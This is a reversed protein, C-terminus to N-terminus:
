SQISIKLFDTILETWNPAGHSYDFYFGFSGIDFTGSMASLSPNYNFCVVEGECKVNDDYARTAVYSSSVIFPAPDNETHQAVPVCVNIDSQELYFRGVLKGNIAVMFVSREGSHLLSVDLETDVNVLVYDGIYNYTVPGAVGSTVLSYAGAQAYNPIGEDSM